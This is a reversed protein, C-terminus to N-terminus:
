QATYSHSSSSALVWREVVASLTLVAATTLSFRWWQTFGFSHSSYSWWFSLEVLLQLGDFTSRWWLQFIAFNSIVDFFVQSCTTTWPQMEQMSLGHATLSHWSYFYILALIFSLNTTEAFMALASLEWFSNSSWCWDKLSLLILLSRLFLGSIVLAKM